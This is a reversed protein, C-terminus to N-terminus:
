VGLPRSRCCGSAAPTMATDPLEGRATASAGYTITLVEGSSHTLTVLRGMAFGATVRHGGVEEIWEIRGDFRFNTIRGSAERLRWSGDTLTLEATEGFRGIFRGPTVADPMFFRGAGGMGLIRVMGDASRELQADWSSVWGRGFLGVGFRDALTVGFTRDLGLPLGPLGLYGDVVSTLHPVPAVANM